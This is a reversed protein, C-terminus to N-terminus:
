EKGKHIIQIDKGGLHTQTEMQTKKYTPRREM